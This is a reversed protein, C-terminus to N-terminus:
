KPAPYKKFMKEVAKHIKKENKQPNDSVTDSATARFVLGKARADIIDVILTGVLVRNVDVSTTGGFRAPYGYGQLSVDEQTAGHLAVLVDSDKEAKILGIASLEAEVASQARQVMLPNAGAPITGQTWAYTKFGAFNAKKDWDANVQQAVAPSVGMVILLVAVVITHVKM